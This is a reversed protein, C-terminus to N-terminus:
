CGNTTWHLSAFLIQHEVWLLFLSFENTQLQTSINERRWPVFCLYLEHAPPKQMEANSYTHLAIQIPLCDKAVIILKRSRTFQLRLHFWCKVHGYSFGLPYFKPTCPEMYCPTSINFYFFSYNILFRITTSSTFRQIREPLVQGYIFHEQVLFTYLQFLICQYWSIFFLTHAREFNLNCSCM